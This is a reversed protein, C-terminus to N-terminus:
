KVVVKRATGDSMRVINVGKQPAALQTGDVAYRAVEVATADATADNIATSTAEHILQLESPGSYWNYERNLFLSKHKNVAIVRQYINKKAYDAPLQVSATTGMVGPQCDICTAFADGKKLQQTVKLNDIYLVSPGDTAYIVIKADEYGKSFECEVDKWAKKDLDFHKREVEEYLGTAPNFAVMAAIANVQYEPYNHEKDQDDSAYDGWLSAKLKVSSDASFNLVPTELRAYGKIDEGTEADQVNQKVDYFYFWGDVMVYGASLPAWREAFYGNMNTGHPYGNLQSQLDKPENGPTWDMKSGNADTVNNFDEDILAFEGDNEAIRDEYVYYNYYLANPIEDWKATYNGGDGLEGDEPTPSQLENLVVYRSPQSKNEGDSATVNYRYIVGPVIGRVTCITDTTELDTVVQEGITGEEDSKYVNVYYKTAGEVKNWHPRFSTGTYYLHRLVNPSGVATKEYYVKFDDLLVKVGNEERLIVRTAPKGQEFRLTFEKWENTMGGVNGYEVYIPKEPDSVDQTTYGLGVYNPTNNALRARFSVFYIGNDASADFVPTNFHAAYYDDARTNNFFIMGGAPYVMYSGWGPTQTYDPNVCSYFIDNSPMGTCTNINFSLDPNNESGSTMKSFDENLIIVQEANAKAASQATQANAIQTAVTTPAALLVALAATLCHKKNM